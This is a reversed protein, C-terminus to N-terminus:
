KFAPSPMKMLSGQADLELAGTSPSIKSPSTSAEAPSVSTSAGLLLLSSDTRDGSGEGAEAAAAKAAEEGAPDDAGAEGETAVADDGAGIQLSAVADEDLEGPRRARPRRDFSLSEILLQEGGGPQQQHGGSGQAQPAAKLGKLLTNAIIYWDPPFILGELAKEWLGQGQARVPNPHQRDDKQEQDPVLPLRRLVKQGGEM